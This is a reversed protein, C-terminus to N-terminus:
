LSAQYHELVDETFGEKLGVINLEKARGSLKHRTNVYPIRRSNSTLMLVQEFGRGCNGKKGNRDKKNGM